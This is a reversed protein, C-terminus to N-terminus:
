RLGHHRLYAGTLNRARGDNGIFLTDEVRVGGDGPLYVGLELALAVGPALPRAYDCTDHVDLGVHHGCRHPMLEAVRAAPDSDHAPGLLGCRRLAAAMEEAAMRELDDWTQGAAVRAELRELARRVAAYIARWKGACGVTIAVDACYGHCRTGVDIITPVDSGVHAHTPAHHLEVAAAGSAVIPPFAAGGTGPVGSCCFLFLQALELESMSRGRRQRRRLHCVARRLALCTAESAHRVCRLEEAAKVTRCRALLGPPLPAAPPRLWAAALETTTAVGTELYHVPWGAPLPRVETEGDTDYLVAAVAGAGADRAAAAGAVYVLHSHPESDVTERTPYQLAFRVGPVLVVCPFAKKAKKLWAGLARRCAADPAPPAGAHLRNEM